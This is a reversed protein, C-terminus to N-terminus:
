WSRFFPKKTVKWLASELDRFVRGIETAGIYGLDIIVHHEVSITGIRSTVSNEFDTGYNWLYGGVDLSVFLNYM